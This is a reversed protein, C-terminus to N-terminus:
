SRPLINLILNFKRVSIISVIVKRAKKYNIKIIGRSTWYVWIIDVGDLFQVYFRRSWDNSVVFSTAGYFTQMEEVLRCFYNMSCFKVQGENWCHRLFDGRRIRIQYRLSAVIWPLISCDGYYKLFLALWSWWFGIQFFFDTPIFFRSFDQNWVIPEHSISINLFCNLTMIEYIESINFPINNKATSSRAIM